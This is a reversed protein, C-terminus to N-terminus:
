KYESFDDGHVCEEILYLTIAPMAITVYNNFSHSYLINVRKKFMTRHTSTSDSPSYLRYPLHETRGVNVNVFESLNSNVHAIGQSEISM